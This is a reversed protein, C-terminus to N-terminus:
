IKCVLQHGIAWQLPQGVALRTANSMVETIAEAGKPLLRRDELQPRLLRQTQCGKPDVGENAWGDCTAKWSGDKAHKSKSVATKLDKDDCVQTNYLRGFTQSFAATRVDILGKLLVFLM